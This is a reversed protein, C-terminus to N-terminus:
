LFANKWAFFELRSWSMGTHPLFSNVNSLRKVDLDLFLSLFIICGILVIHLNVMLIIFETVYGPRKPSPYVPKPAWIRAALFSNKLKGKETTNKCFYRDITECHM